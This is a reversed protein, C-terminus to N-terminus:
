QRHTGPLWRYITSEWSVFLRTISVSYGDQSTKSMTILLSMPIQHFSCYPLVSPSTEIYLHRRVQIPNGNYLNSPRVVTKDNYHFDVYMSLSYRHPFLARTISTVFLFCFRMVNSHYILGWYFLTVWQHAANSGHFRFCIQMETIKGYQITM